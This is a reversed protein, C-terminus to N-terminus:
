VQVQVGGNFTLIAPKEGKAPYYTAVIEAYKQGGVTLPFSTMPIITVSTDTPLGLTIDNDSKNHILVTKEYYHDPNQETIFNSIDLNANAEYELNDAFYQSSKINVAGKDDANLATGDVQVAKIPIDPTTLNVLGNTDPNQDVGDVQIKKIPVTPITLNVQGRLPTEDSNITIESVYNTPILNQVATDRADVYAKSVLIDDSDKTVANAKEIDITTNGIQISGNKENTPKSLSLTPLNDLDAYSGSTAVKSLTPSNRLLKGNWNEDADTPKSWYVDQQTFKSGFYEWRGTDGDKLVYVYEPANEDSEDAKLSYVDGNQPNSIADLADPYNGTVSGKYTLVGSNLQVYGNGQDDVKLALKTGSNELDTGISTGKPFDVWVPEFDENLSLAKNPINLLPFSIFKDTLVKWLTKLNIM